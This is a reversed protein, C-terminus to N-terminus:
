NMALQVDQPTVIRVPFVILTILTYIQCANSVGENTNEGLSSAIFHINLQGIELQKLCNM